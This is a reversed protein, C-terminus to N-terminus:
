IPGNYGRPTIVGAEDRLAADRDEIRKLAAAYPTAENDAKADLFELDAEQEQMTRRFKGVLGIAHNLGEIFTENAETSEAFGPNAICWDVEAQILREVDQLTHSEKPGYHCDETEVDVKVRPGELLDLANQSAAKMDLAWCRLAQIARDDSM